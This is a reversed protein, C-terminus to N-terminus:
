LSHQIPIVSRPAGQWCQTGQSTTARAVTGNRVLRVRGALLQLGCRHQQDSQLEETVFCEVLGIFSSQPSLVSSEM